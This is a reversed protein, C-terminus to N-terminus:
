IKPSPIRQDEDVASEPRHLHEARVHGGDGLAPLHDAHVELRM